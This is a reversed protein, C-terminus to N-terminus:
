MESEKGEGARGEEMETERETDKYRGKRGDDEGSGENDEETRM